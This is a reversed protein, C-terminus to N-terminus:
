IYGLIQGRLEQTRQKPLPKILLDALQEQTHIYTLTIDNSEVKDRIYHYRIDIHKSRKHHVPNESLDICGRNDEYIATASKQDFKLDKLLQRLYMAEQVAASASMYEAESTSLAVTPQM